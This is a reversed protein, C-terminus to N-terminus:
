KKRYVERLQYPNFWQDKVIHGIALIIENLSDGNRRVRVFTGPLKEWTSVELTDLVGRIFGIGFGEGVRRGQQRDEYDFGFGGFGQGWGGGDLFLRATMIGHDEVGLMTSKIKANQEHM